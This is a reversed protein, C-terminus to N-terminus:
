KVNLKNEIRSIIDSISAFRAKANANQMRIIETYMQLQDNSLTNVFADEKEKLETTFPVEVNIM